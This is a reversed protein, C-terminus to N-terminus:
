YRGAGNLASGLMEKHTKLQAAVAQARYEDRKAAPVNVLSEEIMDIIEKPLSAETGPAADKPKVMTSEDTNVIVGSARRMEVFGQVTSMPQTTLWDAEKPTLFKGRASAILASKASAASAKKLAAVDKATQQSTAVLARLAGIAKKGTMGTAAKFATALAKASKEEDEDDEDEDDEDEDDSAKADAPPEDGEAKKEEPEDPTESETKTHEVYKKETKKYTALAASYTALDSSLKRIEEPDDTAALAAKTSKIAANLDMSPEKPPNLLDSYASLRDALGERIADEGLFIGAQLARIKKVSTKRAKAALEFFALALKDVRATEVGLAEDSIPAHLNGDAKRAGSTILRVDFGEQKDRAAASVMTSIVGISGLIASPPCVIEDCACAIAYAASCATENVFCSVKIGAHEKRLRQLEAVCENLGSVVGGPSDICLVIRAPPGENDEGAYAARMKAVIGEYSECYGAHHELEGRVHVIAVDGQRENDLPGGGMLWFFGKRDQHLRNGAMALAEGPKVYRPTM